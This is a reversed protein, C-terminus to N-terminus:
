RGHAAEKFTTLVQQMEKLQQPSPSCYTNFREVSDPNNLDTSGTFIGEKGYDLHRGVREFVTKAYVSDAILQIDAPDKPQKTMIANRLCSLSNYEPDDALLESVRSNIAKMFAGCLASNWIDASPVAGSKAALLATTDKYNGTLADAELSQALHFANERMKKYLGLGRFSKGRMPNDYLASLDNNVHAYEIHIANNNRTHTLTMIAPTRALEQEDNIIFDHVSPQQEDDAPIFLTAKHITDPDAKSARIIAKAGPIGNTLIRAADEISFHEDFQRMSEYSCSINLIKHIYLFYSASSVTYINIRLHYTCNTLHLSQPFLSYVRHEDM